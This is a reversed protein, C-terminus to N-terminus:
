PLMERMFDDLSIGRGAKVDKLGAEIGSMVEQKSIHQREYQSKMKRIYSLVKASLGEYNCLSYVEMQLARNLEIATM